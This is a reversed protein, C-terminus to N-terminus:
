IQSFATPVLFRNTIRSVTDAYQPDNKLKNWTPHKMFAGWHQQHAENSEASLMYTLHPLNGGILAQGYFIPALGVERMTQIEGSNFMEVKKLAKLESYSEYTRIEFLRPKKERAYPPLEVKPMGAFALMLWSDIREFAPNTKPIQLYEAGAQQYLTDAQLRAGAQAFSDLSPHPLLVTVVCPERVETAAPTGTREQQGFVGVPNIGLRNWAPIAAKQLYTDLLDHKAGSKLRYTRLEYYERQPGGTPEAAVASLSATTLGAFTSLSSVAVSTKLFERRKM